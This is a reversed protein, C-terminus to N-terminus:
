KTFTASPESAGSGSAGRAIVVAYYSGAPLPNVLDSIDVRIENNSPQPKGIDRSAVPQAQSPDGARYIWVLYTTVGGAHDPSPNFAVATASPGPATTVTV